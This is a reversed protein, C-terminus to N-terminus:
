LFVMEIIAKQVHIWSHKTEEYGDSSEPTEPDSYSDTLDENESSESNSELTYTTKRSHSMQVEMDSDDSDSHAAKAEEYDNFGYTEHEAARTGSSSEAFEPHPHGGVEINCDGEEESQFEAIGYKRTHQLRLYRLINPGEGKCLNCTCQRSM